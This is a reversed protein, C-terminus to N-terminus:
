IDNLTSQAADEREEPTEAKLTKDMLNQNNKDLKKKKKFAKVTTSIAGVIRDLIASVIIKIIKSLM